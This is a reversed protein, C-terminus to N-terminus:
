PQRTPEDHTQQVPLSTIPPLSQYYAAVDHMQETTLRHVVPQMISAYASGGRHGAKFLQLQLVLYDAYQGNLLPYAPNRPTPAPGHCDACSPVRQEPLGQKAIVRGREIAPTTSSDASVHAPLGAYYRALARREARSLGAAIPEMIGSPRKGSAFAQLANDLYITQQGALRPFAGTGRGLGSVGHCRGCSQRVAEPVNSPPLLDELPAKESTTTTDRQTPAKPGQVLNTYAAEDLNPLTRLFAVMAWVEDDRHRAPWGPMGTFKIGHKVIYYLEVDEFKSISASLSPPHPTAAQTIRPQPLGPSGHCPRCGTEFHGAGKLVLAPDDLPPADMGLTHTAVSRQKSFDMFWRTIAWHGSSAKISVIGSASLLLGGVFLIGLLMAWHKLITKWRSKKRPPPVARPKATAPARRSSRLRSGTFLGLALLAINKLLRMM